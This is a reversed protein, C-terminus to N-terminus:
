NCLSSKNTKNDYKGKGTGQSNIEKAKEHRYSSLVSIMKKKCIEGTTGM